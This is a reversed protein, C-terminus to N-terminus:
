KKKLVITGDPRRESTVHCIEELAHVFGGVDDAPFRGGIRIAALSRDALQLRQGSRRSFEDVLEGLTAGALEIMSDSWALSQKIQAASVPTVTVQAAPNAAARAVVARNGATVVAAPAVTPVAQPAPTDLAPPTVQVVGETVLVDIAQADHRVAFATGVAKVTVQGAEVFFPRGADKAVSFFAEGDELRVRREAASYALSIRARDKLRVETGDSLREIRPTTAALPPPASALDAPSPGGHRLTVFAFVVAAAAALGIAVPWKRAAPSAPARRVAKGLQRFYTWSATADRLATAHRSDVALWAQLEASEAPTLGRDQRVVWQTARDRLDSEGPGPSDSAPATM